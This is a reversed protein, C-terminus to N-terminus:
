CHQRAEMAIKTEEVANGITSKRGGMGEPQRRVALLLGEGWTQEGIGVSWSGAGTCVLLFMDWNWAHLTTTRVM